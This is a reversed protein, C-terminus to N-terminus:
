RLKVVWTLELRVGLALVAFVVVLGILGDEFASSLGLM